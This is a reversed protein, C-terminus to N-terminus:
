HASHVPPWIYSAQIDWMWLHSITMLWAPPELAADWCCSVLMRAIVRAQAPAMAELKTRACRLLALAGPGEGVPPTSISDQACRARLEAVEREAHELRQRLAAHEEM